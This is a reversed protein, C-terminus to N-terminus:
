LAQMLLYVGSLIGAAVADIPALGIFNTRATVVRDPLRYRQRRPNSRASKARREGISAYSGLSLVTHLDEGTAM